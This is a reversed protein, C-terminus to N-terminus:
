RSSPRSPPAKGGEKKRAPRASVPARLMYGVGRVTHLMPPEDRADLKKRLYNVYVDVINTTEGTEAGGWIEEAISARTLPKGANRMFHALLAFERQTLSLKRKGRHVDRSTPDLALDGVVLRPTREQGRARRVLARIRAILEDLQFPKGLYDDAGAELGAVRDGVRNRGTLM